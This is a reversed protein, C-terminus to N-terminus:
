ISHNARRLENFMISLRRTEIVVTAICAVQCNSVTRLSCSSSSSSSSTRSSSEQDSASASPETNDEPGVKNLADIMPKLDDTLSKVTDEIGKIVSDNLKNTDDIACTVLSFVTKFLGDLFGRKSLSHM